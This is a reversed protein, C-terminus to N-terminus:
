FMMMQSRLQDDWMPGEEGEPLLSEGGGRKGRGASQRKSRKSSTKEKKNGKSRKSKKKPKRQQGEGEEEEGEEGGGMGVTVMTELSLHLCEFQRQTAVLGGRMKRLGRIVQDLINQDPEWSLPEPIPDTMMQYACALACLCGTRGGGNTSMVCVPGPVTQQQRAALLLHVLSPLLRPTQPVGGDPWGTFHYLTLYDTESDISSTLSFQHVTLTPITGPPSFSSPSPSSSLPSPPLPP